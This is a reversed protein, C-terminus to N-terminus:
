SGMAELRKERRAVYWAAIVTLVMFAAIIFVDLYAIGTKLYLNNWLTLPATRFQINVSRFMNPLVTRHLLELAVFVPIIKVALTILNRSYRSVVFAVAAAGLGLAYALSAMILLYSGLTMPFFPVFDVIAGHFTMLGHNWYAFAGARGLLVGFVALTLTTLLVSSLLMAAFQRLKIRRGLKSSYQLPLIKRMRDSVILPSHLLATGFLLMLSIHHFLHTVSSFVNGPLTGKYEGTALVETLRQRQRANFELHNFYEIDSPLRASIAGGYEETLFELFRLTDLREEIFDAGADLTERREEILTPIDGSALADTYLQRKWDQLEESLFFELRYPMHEWEAHLITLSQLADADGAAELQYDRVFGAMEEDTLSVGYQAIIEELIDSQPKISRITNQLEAGFFYMVGLAAVIALIKINWIKKIEHCIVNM